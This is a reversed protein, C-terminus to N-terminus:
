QATITVILGDYETGNVDLVSPEIDIERIDFGIVAGPAHLATLLNAQLTDTDALAENGATDGMVVPQVAINLTASYVPEKVTFTIQENSQTIAGVWQIPLDAVNGDLPKNTYSRNVGTVSLGGLATRLSAVSM